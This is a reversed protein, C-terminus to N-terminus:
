IKKNLKEPHEYVKTRTRNLNIPSDTIIESPKYKEADEAKKKNDDLLGVQIMIKRVRNNIMEQERTLVQGTEDVAERRGSMKIGIQKLQTEEFADFLPEQNPQLWNKKNKAPDKLVWFDSETRGGDYWEDLGDQFVRNMYDVGMKERKYTDEDKYMSKGM